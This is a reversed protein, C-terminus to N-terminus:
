QEGYAVVWTKEGKSGWVLKWQTGVLKNQPTSIPACLKAKVSSRMTNKREDWREREGEGQIKSSKLSDLPHFPVQELTVM